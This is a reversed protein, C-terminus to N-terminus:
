VRTRLREPVARPAPIDARWIAAAFVVAALLYVVGFAVRGSPPLWFQPLVLAMVLGIPWGAWRASYSLGQWAVAVAVGSAALLLLGAVFMVIAVPQERIGDVAELAAPDGDLAARGMAHLGFTEAGYYPLVLVAGLLGSRRALRAASGDALDALRVTLGAFSALALAGCVHAVIWYSSAFAEAVAAPAEQQDGYPRLVLYAAMLVGTAVTPM